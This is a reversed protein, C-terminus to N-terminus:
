AHAARMDGHDSTFLVITNEDLGADALTKELRDVPRRCRFLRTTPPSKRLGGPPVFRNLAARRRQQRGTRRVESGAALQRASHHTRPHIAAHIRRACVSRHRDWRCPSSFPGIRRSRSSSNSPSIALRRRSSSGCPSSKRRRSLLDTRFTQSPMTPRGSSSGRVVRGRHCIDPIVRGVMWAVQGCIGHSLWGRSIEALTVADRCGCTTPSWATPTDRVNGDASDGARAVSRVNAYTRKFRVGEAALRDLVRRRSRRTAM